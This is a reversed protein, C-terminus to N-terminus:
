SGRLSNTLYQVKINAPGVSELPNKPDNFPHIFMVPSDNTNLIRVRGVFKVQIPDLVCTEETVCADWVFKKATLEESTVVRETGKFIPQFVSYEMYPYKKEKFFKAVNPYVARFCQEITPSFSIRPLSPEPYPWSPDGVVGPSSEESHDLGAPDDPLWIGAANKDKFSIHFLIGVGPKLNITRLDTLKSM